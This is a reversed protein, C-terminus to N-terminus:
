ERQLAMVGCFPGVLDRRWWTGERRRTALDTFRYVYRTSRIYRPPADPFPNTQLLGTVEPKGQLLRVTFNRFWVNRPGRCEGLAAFWMQWDLRPMHPAVFEPRRAPDGPKWRFGYARWTQGDQSGEIVIEPRTTTMRAFLGYGNVSRLPALSAMWRGMWEPWPGRTRFALMTQNLSVPMVILALVAVATMRARPARRDRAARAAEGLRRPLFRRLFADDLLLVCLAVALLNFFGYNGTLAIGAQLGALGFFALVRPRRPLFILFPLGLETAFMLGTSLRQIGAPLQHAYWGVWTPLPQTEYHVELATLGWWTPDGSSLKVVGSSFMLKFLLWRLLFLAGGSVRAERALSPLFRAPAFLVALAGTELLLVDWQFQLFDRCVAALSLYLLWLIALIPGPSIGAVLLTSLGAGGIWLAQLFGDGASLWALTPLAYYREAGLSRGAADLLDKAPLIGESGALGPLQVGLSVFAVLYVAGLLRLFIWRSLLYSSPTPDPGWLWRTLRSFLVRHSAVLRYFAEAAPAAGPLSEYIRLPWRKGPAAALARFVAEAGESVRGDPELLQVSERFREPPIEPLGGAVDQYPAYEVRDGTAHRWREIWRRCFGCDGDFVLLPRSRTPV